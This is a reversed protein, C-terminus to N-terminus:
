LTDKVAMSRPTKKKGQLRSPQSSPAMDQLEMYATDVPLGGANKIRLLGGARRRFDNFDAIDSRDQKALTVATTRIHDKIHKYQNYYEEDAVVGQAYAQQFLGDITQQSVTGNQLYENIIARVVQALFDRRATRPVSLVQGIKEPLTREARKVFDRAKAPLTSYSDKAEAETDTRSQEQNESDNRAQAAPTAGSPEQGLFHGQPAIREGENEAAFGDLSYKVRDSYYGFPYRGENFYLLVDDSLATQFTDKVIYLFDEISISSTHTIPNVGQSKTDPRTGRKQRGNLAHAVDYIGIESINGSNQEVTVTVVFERGKDDTAYAGMVYTGSVNKADDYMANIPVANKVVDGIVAGLRANTLLRKLDGELGHQITSNDIRLMRGTYSNQVYVKGNRETGVTRANQMGLSEVADRDVKQKSNRVSDVSPLIVPKMDPLSVLFDYDYLTKDEALLKGRYAELGAESDFENSMNDDGQQPSTKENQASQQDLRWKGDSGVFWGTQQRITEDAVGEAQMEKALRLADMDATQAKEGGYSYRVKAPPGTPQETGNDQFFDQEVHNDRLWQRVTDQARDIGTAHGNIGAYADALMEELVDGAPDTATDSDETCVGAIIAYQQWWNLFGTAVNIEAGM